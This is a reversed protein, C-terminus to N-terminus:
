FVVESEEGTTYRENGLLGASYQWEIKLKHERSVTQLGQFLNVSLNDDPQGPQPESIPCIYRIYPWFSLCSALRDYNHTSRVTWRHTSLLEETLTKPVIIIFKLHPIFSQYFM